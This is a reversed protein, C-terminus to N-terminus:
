CLEAVSKKLFVLLYSIFPQHSPKYNQLLELHVTFPMQYLNLTVTAFCVYCGLPEFHIIRTLFCNANRKTKDTSFCAQM